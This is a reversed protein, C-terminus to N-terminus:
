EDIVEEGYSASLLAPLDSRHLTRRRTQEIEIDDGTEKYKRWAPCYGCFLCHSATSPHSDDYTGIGAHDGEVNDRLRFGMEKEGAFWLVGLYIRYECLTMTSKQGNCRACSVVMFAPSFQKFRCKPFVHDMQLKRDFFLATGCYFCHLAKTYTLANILDRERGLGVIAAGRGGEPASM